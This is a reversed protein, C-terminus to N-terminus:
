VFINAAPLLGQVESQSAVMFLYRIARSVKSLQVARRKRKRRYYIAPASPIRRYMGDGFPEFKWRFNLVNAAPVRGQAGGLSTAM